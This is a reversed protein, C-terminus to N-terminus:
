SNRNERDYLIKSESLASYLFSFKNNKEQEFESSSYIKFDLPITLGYFLRRIEIGRKHKPLNTDKIVIFDLDSNDNFTGNAYSGFLIVKDPNYKNVIQNAIDNIQNDTIM